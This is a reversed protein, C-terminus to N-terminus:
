IQTDTFCVYKLYMKFTLYESKIDVIHEYNNIFLAKINNTFILCIIIFNFFTTFRSARDSHGYKGKM